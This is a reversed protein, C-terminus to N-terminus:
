RLYSFADGCLWLTQMTVGYDTWETIAWSCGEVGLYDFVDKDADRSHMTFSDNTVELQGEDRLTPDIQSFLVYDGSAEISLQFDSEGASGGDWDGVLSAPPPPYEPGDCGTMGSVSTLAVAVTALQSCRRRKAFPTKSKVSPAITPRLSSLTNRANAGTSATLM